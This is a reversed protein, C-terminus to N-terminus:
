NLSLICFSLISIILRLKVRNENSAIALTQTKACAFLL